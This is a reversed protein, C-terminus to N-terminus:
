SNKSRKAVKVYLWQVSLVVFVACGTFFIYAPVYSGGFRDALIGPLSSFLLAGASYGIQFRRITADYQEPTSLDGAWATLGVTTLSLGFGYSCMAAFLLLKSGGNVCCLFVGLILLAGFIWNSKYTSLKDSLCGYAFKSLTLTIGSVSVALAATHASFGAAKAFVTLHSYGVSTLAGLLLLMLAVLPWDKRSLTGINEANERTQENTGSGYPELGKQSPESRILLFSFTVLVAIFASELIFTSKLGTKEILFTLLSPFGLTSMGTAASCMGIALTRKRVFWRELVMAIPIMTGFGYGLGVVAAALCYVFHSKAFGFVFFGAAIFLGALMMGTRLSLKKYYTGAFFMSIFSFLSRVMIIASSQANTFGNEVM